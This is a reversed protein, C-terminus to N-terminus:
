LLLWQPGISRYLCLIMTLTNRGWMSYFYSVQDKGNTNKLCVYLFRLNEDPQVTTAGM